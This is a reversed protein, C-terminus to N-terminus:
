LAASHGAVLRAERLHHVQTEQEWLRLLQVAEGHRSPERSPQRVRPVKQSKGELLVESLDAGDRRQGPGVKRLGQGQVRRGEFRIRLPQVTTGNSRGHSDEASRILPRGLARAGASGVQRVALITSDKPMQTLSEEALITDLTGHAAMRGFGNNGNVRSKGRTQRGQGFDRWSKGVPVAVSVALSAGRACFVSFALFSV